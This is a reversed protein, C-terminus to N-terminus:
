AAANLRIAARIRDVETGSYSQICLAVQDPHADAMMTSIWQEDLENEEWHAYALSTEVPEHQAALDANNAVFAGYILYESFRRTRCLALQWPLGTVELIRETMAKVARKDWVIDQGIFDDAPFTPAALGLLKRANRTWVSHKPMDALIHGRDVYLPCKEQAAYARLDFPRFFLNDSDVICVRDESAALTCAIKLIQQIHWGHVPMSYPSVWVRRGNRSFWKPASWLYKPLLASCPVIVRKPGAFRQFLAADGDPNVLVYHREFGTVMGDISECLLAFRELDNVYTPTLLAVKRM